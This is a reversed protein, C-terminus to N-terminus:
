PMKIYESFEKPIPAEFSVKGDEPTSISLKWAHLYLRDATAGGYLVDGIIPHGIHKLHVRLQHTRGTKPHLELLSYKDNTQIVKYVTQAPKGGSGPRFQAPMKPNRELPVDIIGETLKPQGLVIALYTKEVKHSSFQKQLFSMTPHNKACIMVGSTARDLRHVIGFRIDTDKGSLKQRLFSAVSPENHFKSLAHSLIGAPKNIVLVNQDEFVIPLDITPVKGLKSLDAVIKVKDNPKLKYSVKQPEDNVLVQEDSVLKQLYGRSIEPHLRSLYHDLRQSTSQHDDTM